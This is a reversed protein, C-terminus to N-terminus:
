GCNTAVRSGPSSRVSGTLTSSPLATLASFATIFVVPPPAELAELVGFGDLGPMQVDLLVLDPRQREIMEVAQFGDAAEGLM